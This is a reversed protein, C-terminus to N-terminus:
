KLLDEFGTESAVLAVELEKYKVLLDAKMQAMGALVKQDITAVQAKLDEIQVQMPAVADAVAKDLEAQSYIKDSVPVPVSAVGAKFGEDYSLKKADELAKPVDSLQAQLAALQAVLDQLLKLLDM